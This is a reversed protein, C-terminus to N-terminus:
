GEGGLAGGGVTAVGAPVAAPPGGLREAVGEVAAEVPWAALLVAGGTAFAGTFVGADGTGAACGGLLSLTGGSM